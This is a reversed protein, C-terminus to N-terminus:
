FLSLNPLLKGVAEILKELRGEALLRQVEAEGRSWRM